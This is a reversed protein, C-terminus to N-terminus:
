QEEQIEGYNPQSSVSSAGIAGESESIKPNRQMEDSKDSSHAVPQDDPAQEKQVVPKPRRIAEAAEPMAVPPPQPPVWVRQVPQQSSPAAYTVGNYGNGNDIEQIRVNKKQWWPLSADVNSQTYDQVKYNLEEGNAHPQLVQTATNQM